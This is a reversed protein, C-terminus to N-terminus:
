PANEQNILSLSPGPGIHTTRSWPLHDQTITFCFLVFFCLLLLLFFGLQPLQPSCALLCCETIAETQLEAKAERLSPGYLMLQFLNKERLNNKTTTNIVTLSFLSSHPTISVEVLLDEFRCVSLM